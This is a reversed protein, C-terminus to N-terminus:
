YYYRFITTNRYLILYEEELFLEFTVSPNYFNEYSEINTFKETLKFL